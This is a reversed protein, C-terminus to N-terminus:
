SRGTDEELSGDARIRINGPSEPSLPSWKWGPHSGYWEKCGLYASGSAQLDHTPAGAQQCGIMGSSALRTDESDVLWGRSPLTATSALLHARHGSATGSCPTSAPLGTATRLCVWCAPSLRWRYVAGCAPSGWLHSSLSLDAWSRQDVIM